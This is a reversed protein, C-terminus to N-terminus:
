PQDYAPLSAEGASFIASRDAGAEAAYPRAPNQSLYEQWGAIDNARQARLFEAMEQNPASVFILKVGKHIPPTFLPNGNSGGIPTGHLLTDDAMTSLTAIRLFLGGGGGGGLPCM